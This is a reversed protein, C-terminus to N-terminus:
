KKDNKKKSLHIAVNVTNASTNLLEAIKKPPIGVDNM